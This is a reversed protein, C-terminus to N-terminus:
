IANRIEWQTIHLQDTHSPFHEMVDFWQRPIQSKSGLQVPWHIAEFSQLNFPGTWDFVKWYWLINIQHYSWTYSANTQVMNSAQQFLHTSSISSTDM